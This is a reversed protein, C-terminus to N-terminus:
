FDGVLHVDGAHLQVIRQDDQRILLSGDQEFGCVEGEVHGDRTEAWVRRQFVLSRHRLEKALRETGQTRFEIVRDELERLIMQLLQERSVEFGLQLSLATAKQRISPPVQDTTFNVNIGFGIVCYSRDDQDRSCEALIGCVKRRQIWVDNPWKVQTRLSTKKTIGEAVALATLLTYWTESHTELTRKQGAAQPSSCHIPRIILSALISSGAPALWSRHRRGRGRTQHEALVLTGEPAGFRGLRLAIDNTSDTEQFLYLPHGFSETDLGAILQDYNM